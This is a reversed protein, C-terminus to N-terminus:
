FDMVGRYYQYMARIAAESILSDSTGVKGSDLKIINIDSSSRRIGEQVFKM